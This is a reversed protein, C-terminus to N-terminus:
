KSVSDFFETYHVESLADIDEIFFGIKISNNQGPAINKVTALISAKKNEPLIMDLSIQSNLKFYRIFKREKITIGFGSPSVNSVLMREESPKFIKYERFVRDAFLCFKRVHASYTSDIPSLSNVTIYGYPLKGYLLMPVSVESIYDPNEKLFNDNPIINSRYYSYDSEKGPPANTQINEIYIPTRRLNFYHMRKDNHSENMLFLRMKHMPSGFESNIIDRIQDTKKLSLALTNEVIFDAIINTIFALKRNGEGDAVPSRTEARSQSIIQVRTPKLIFLNEEQKEVNNLFAYFVETGLRTFIIVEGNITKIHPIKFAATEGSFGLYRVPMKGDKLRLFIERGSFYKTFLDPFNDTLTQSTLNSQKM